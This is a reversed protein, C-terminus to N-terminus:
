NHAKSFVSSLLDEPFVLINYNSYAVNFKETNDAGLVQRQNLNNHFLKDIQTRIQTQNQLTNQKEKKNGCVQDRRLVEIRYYQRGFVTRLIYNRQVYHLSLNM